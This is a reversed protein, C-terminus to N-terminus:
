GRAIYFSVESVAHVKRNRGTAYEVVLEEVQLLPENLLAKNQKM